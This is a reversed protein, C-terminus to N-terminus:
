RSSTIPIYKAVRHSTYLGATESNATGSTANGEVMGYHLAVPDKVVDIAPLYDKRPPPPPVYRVGITSSADSEVTRRRRKYRVQTVDFAVRDEMFVELRFTRERNVEDILKRAAPTITTWSPLVVILHREDHHGARKMLVRVGDVGVKRSAPADFVVLVSARTQVHRHRQTLRDRLVVHPQEPDCYDRTYEDATKDALMIYGRAALMARVVRWQAYLPPEAAARKAM